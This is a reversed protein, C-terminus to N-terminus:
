RAITGPKVNVPCSAEAMNMEIRYLCIAPYGSHSLAPMVNEEFFNSRNAIIKYPIFNFTLKIKCSPKGIRSRPATTMAKANSAETHSDFAIFAFREMVKNTPAPVPIHPAAAIAATAGITSALSSSVAIPTPIIARKPVIKETPYVIMRGNRGKVAESYPIQDPIESWSTACTASAAAGPPSVASAIPSRAFSPLTKKSTGTQKRNMYMTFLFLVPLLCCMGNGHNRM